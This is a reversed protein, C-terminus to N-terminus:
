EEILLRIVVPLGKSLWSTKMIKKVSDIVDAELGVSGGTFM